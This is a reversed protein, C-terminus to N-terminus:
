TPKELKTWFMPNGSSEMRVWKYDLEAEAVSRVKSKLNDLVLDCENTRAVLVLHHEGSRLEVESLLLVDAQWGKQILEHRKTVAYDNCDGAIPNILWQETAPNNPQAQPM